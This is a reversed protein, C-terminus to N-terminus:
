DMLLREEVQECEHKLKDFFQLECILAKIEASSEAINANFLQGLKSLIESFKSNSKDILEFLGDSDSNEQIEFLQERFSMQEMLLSMDSVTYSNLDFPIGELTLLYSARSVPSKLSHYLENNLATAQVAQRQEAVPAQSFRDPHSQQQQKRYAMGLAKLDIEFGKEIGFHEFYTQSM